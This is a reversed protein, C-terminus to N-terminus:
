ILKKKKDYIHICNVPCSQAAELNNGLDDLEKTYTEGKEKKGDVLDAKDENQVWTDPDAALCAFAGICEDRNYVIRYRKGM